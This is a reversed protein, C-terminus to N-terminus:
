LGGRRIQQTDHMILHVSNGRDDIVYLLTPGWGGSQCTRAAGGDGRGEFTTYYRFPVSGLKQLAPNDEVIHAPFRGPVHLRAHQDFDQRGLRVPGAPVGGSSSKPRAPLGRTWFRTGRPTSAELM